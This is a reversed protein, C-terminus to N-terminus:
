REGFMVALEEGSGVAGFSLKVVVFDGLGEADIRRLLVEDTKRVSAKLRQVDAPVRAGLGRPPLAPEVQVRFFGHRM